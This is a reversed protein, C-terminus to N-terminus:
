FELDLDFALGKETGIGQYSTPRHEFFNSKGVENLSLNDMFDFPNASGPALPECGVQRLLTDAVYEVYQRLLPANIDVANEPLAKEFFAASLAVTERAIGRVVEEGPPAELRENLIFCWFMAHVGEDRAIFENLSTIGPFLNRAKYHQLTAFFGSFLAGELFAMAAFVDAAPHDGHIWWRVWDAMRGVVPHTRVAAFVEAQEEAPIIEQIQLSYAESHACEQDAQARLYYQGEKQRLLKSITEDIGEMVLEDAVGFFALTDRLLRKDEPGVKELDRADGSLDVEQALWHLKELTKRFSWMEEDALPFLTARRPDGRLIEEEAEAEASIDSRLGAWGKLTEPETAPFLRAAGDAVLAEAEPFAERWAPSPPPAANELIEAIVQRKLGLTGTKLGRAELFEVAATM